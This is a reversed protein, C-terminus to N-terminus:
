SVSLFAQLVRTANKPTRLAMAVKHQGVLQKLGALHKSQGEM